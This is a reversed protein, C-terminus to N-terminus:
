KDPWQLLDGDEIPFAQNDQEMRLSPREGPVFSGKRWGWLTMVELTAGAEVPRGDLHFHLGTEDQVTELKGMIADM